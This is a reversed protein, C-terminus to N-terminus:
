RQFSGRGAPQRSGVGDEDSQVFAWGEDSHVVGKLRVFGGPLLAEDGPLERLLRAVESASFVLDAPFTLGFTEVGLDEGVYRRVGGGADEGGTLEEEGHHHHEHGHAHDHGHAHSHTHDHDHDHHHGHNHAHEHGHDHGHDHSHTHGHDHDHHHGHDHAHGHSHDHDHAHHVPRPARDRRAYEDLWAVDLRGQETREIREKPPFLESAREFYADIDGQDTVDCRNAVLIDAAEIQSIFVENEYWLPNCFKRPDVLTITARVDLAEAFQEERLTDLIAGADALGTPEIILRDPRATKLLDVLGVRFMVGNACCICGGPVEKVSVGDEAGEIAAGDIGVEGFENVLVAWSEGEPAHELLDLIATTKGVGLFGTIVNTPVREIKPRTM